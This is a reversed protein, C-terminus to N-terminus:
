ACEPIESPGWHCKDDKLCDATTPRAGEECASEFESGNAWCQCEEKEETDAVSIAEAGCKPDEEPGWHCKKDGNVCAAAYGVFAAIVLNKMKIEFKYIGM